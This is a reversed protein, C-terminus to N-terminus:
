LAARQQACTGNPHKNSRHERKRYIEYLQMRGAAELNAGNQKTWEFLSSDFTPRVLAVALLYRATKLISLKVLFDQSCNPDAFRQSKRVCSEYSFGWTVNKIRKLLFLRVLLSETCRGLLRTPSVRRGSQTRRLKPHFGTGM